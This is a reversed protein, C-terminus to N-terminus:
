DRNEEQLADTKNYQMFLGYAAELKNSLIVTRSFILVININMIM